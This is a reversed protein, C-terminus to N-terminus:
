YNSFPREAGETVVGGQRTLAERVQPLVEPGFQFTGSFNDIEVIVGEAALKLGGAAAAQSGGGLVKPHLHGETEPLVHVVGATDQVFVYQGPALDPSFPRSEPHRAYSFTDLPPRTPLPPSM